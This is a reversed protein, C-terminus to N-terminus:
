ANIPDHECSTSLPSPYHYNIFFSNVEWHHCGIFFANVEWTDDSSNFELDPNDVIENIYMLQFKSLLELNGINLIQNLSLKLDGINENEDKYALWVTLM